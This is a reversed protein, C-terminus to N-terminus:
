DNKEEKRSTFYIILLVVSGTIAAIMPIYSVSLRSEFDSIESASWYASGSVYEETYLTTFGQFDYISYISVGIVLIALVLTVIDYKKSICFILSVAGSFLVIKSMVSSLTFWSLSEGAVTAHSPDFVIFFPSVIILISALIKIIDSKGM